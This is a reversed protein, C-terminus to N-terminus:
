RKRKPKEPVTEFLKRLERRDLYVRPTGGQRVHRTLRGARMHAYLTTRAVDFEKAADAISVLEAEV